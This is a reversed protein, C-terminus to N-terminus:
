PTPRSAAWQILWIALARAQEPTTHVAIMERDQGNGHGSTICARDGCDSAEIWIGYRDAHVHDSQENEAELVACVLGLAEAIDDRRRTLNFARGAGATERLEGSVDALRMAARTICHIGDYEDGPLQDPGPVIRRLNVMEIQTM